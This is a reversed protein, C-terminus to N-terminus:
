SNWYMFNFKWSWIIISEVYKRCFCKTHIYFLITWIMHIEFIGIIFHEYTLVHIIFLYFIIYMGIYMCMCVCIYIYSYVYIYIYINIYIYMCWMHCVHLMSPHSHHQLRCTTFSHIFTPIMMTFLSRISFITFYCCDLHLHTNYHITSMHLYTLLCQTTICLIICMHQTLAPAPTCSLSTPIHLMITSVAVL